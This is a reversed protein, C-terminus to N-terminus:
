KLFKAWQLSLNFILASILVSAVLVAVWTRLAGVSERKRLAAYSGAWAVIWVIYSYTWIGSFTGAPKYIELWPSFSRIYALIGILLSAVSAALFASAVKGSAKFEKAEPM